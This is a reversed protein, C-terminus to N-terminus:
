TTPLSHFLSPDAAGPLVRILSAPRLGMTSRGTPGDIALSDRSVSVEAVRARTGPVLQQTELYTLLDADEEAEETIRYITVDTGAAVDSLPIGPPRSRATALDIPNGHPCTQPDGVLRRIAAEVRPSVAVQLRMAEDDSEAWGLGIVRTLLWELLAHRRFISDAAAQGEGTLVLDRETGPEFLGDRSLRGVMESAAQKSVQMRAALSSITIPQNATLMSRATLLYAQGAASIEHPTHDHPRSM